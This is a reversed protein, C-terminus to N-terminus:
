TRGTPTYCSAHGNVYVTADDGGSTSSDAKIEVAHGGPLAVPAFKAVAKTPVSQRVESMGERYTDLEQQYPPASGGNPAAGASLTVSKCSSAKLNIMTSSTDLSNLDAKWAYRFLASGVRATNTPPHPSNPHLLKALSVTYWEHATVPRATAL